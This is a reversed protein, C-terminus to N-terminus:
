GHDEQSELNELEESDNNGILKDICVHMIVSYVLVLGSIEM